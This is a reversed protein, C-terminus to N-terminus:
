NTIQILRIIAINNSIGEIYPNQFLNPKDIKHYIRNSELSLDKKFYTNITNRRNNSLSIANNQNDKNPEKLDIRKDVFIEILVGIDKKNLKTLYPKLKKIENRILESKAPLFNLIVYTEDFPKVNDLATNFDSENQINKDLSGTLEFNMKSASNILVNKLVSFFTTTYQFESNVLDAKFPIELTIIGRKDRLMNSIKILNLNQNYKISDKKLLQLNNLQLLNKTELKNNKIALNSNSKLTGNIINYGFSKIIYPSLLTVDFDSIRIDTDIYFDSTMFNIEGNCVLKSKPNLEATLDFDATTDNINSIDKLNLEGDSMTFQFIPTTNNDTFDLNLNKINIKRIWSSENDNELKNENLNEKSKLERKENLVISNGLKLLSDNKTIQTKVKDMHLLNIQYQFPIIQFHKIKMQSKNIQLFPNNGTIHSLIIENLELQGSGHYNNSAINLDM